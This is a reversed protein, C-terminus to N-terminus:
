IVLLVVEQIFQKEKKKRSRGIMIFPLICITIIIAGVIASGLDMNM